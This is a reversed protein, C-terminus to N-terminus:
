ELLRRVRRMVKDPEMGDKTWGMVRVMPTIAHAFFKKLGPCLFYQGPEQDKSLAYRDKPCAGNCVSLYPCQRCEATLADKKGAGFAQQEEKESLAQLSEDKLYGLRHEDDVFHDCAYVAGDEEAILVRGCTPAMWCLSAPQGALVHAMEAFFQVDCAGIDHTVWEDFVATLFDGYEDPTISEKSLHVGPANASVVPGNEERVMIPIFQIWGTNLERLAKYVELPHKVTESNVTCLLDPRIGGKLCREVAEKVRTYTNRGGLDKRNLDHVAESGDLSIGVDFHHRSLFSVWEDDLLLGNTQLNNWADWGAPLYRRELQLAKRFFPIGALTPEGGHWVFSVTPGPSAEVTEKIMKELLETTMVSQVAHSSFRGKELYYCYRCKMNCRSGVPKAMVVIPQKEPM